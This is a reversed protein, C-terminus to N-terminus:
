VVGEFSVDGDIFLSDSWELECEISGDGVDLYEYIVDHLSCIISLPVRSLSTDYMDWYISCEHANDGVISTHRSVLDSSMSSIPDVILALLRLVVM